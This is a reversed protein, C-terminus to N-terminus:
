IGDTFFTHPLRWNHSASSTVQWWLNETRTEQVHHGVSVPLNWSSCQFEEGSGWETNPGRRHLDSFVTYHLSHRIFLINTKILQLLSKVKRCQHLVDCLQNCLQIHDAFEASQHCEKYIIPRYAARLNARNCPRFTANNAHWFRLLLSVIWPAIFGTYGTGHEWQTRINSSYVPM